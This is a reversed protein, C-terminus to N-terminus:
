AMSTPTAYASLYNWGVSSSLTIDGTGESALGGVVYLGIDPAMGAPILGIDSVHQTSDDKTEFQVLASPRTGIMIQLNVRGVVKGWLTAQVQVTRDYPKVSLTSGIVKKRAGDKVIFRQNISPQDEM